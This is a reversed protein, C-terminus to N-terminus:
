ADHGDHVVDVFLFHRPFDIGADLNGGAFVHIGGFYILENIRGEIFIQLTVISKIMECLPVVVCLPFKSSPKREEKHRPAKTHTRRRQKMDRRRMRFMRLLKPLVCASLFTESSIAGPSTWANIPSFPAPFLVSM